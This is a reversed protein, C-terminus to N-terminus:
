IGDCNWRNVLQLSKKEGRDASPVIGTAQESSEKLIVTMCRLRAQVRKRRPIM